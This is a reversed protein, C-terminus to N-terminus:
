LPLKVAVISDTRILHPKPLLDLFAAMALSYGHIRTETAGHCSLKLSYFNHQVEAARLQAEASREEAQSLAVAEDSLEVQIRQISDGLASAVTELTDIQKSQAQIRRAGSHDWM